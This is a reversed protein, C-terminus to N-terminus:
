NDPWLTLNFSDNALLGYVFILLYCWGNFSTHSM